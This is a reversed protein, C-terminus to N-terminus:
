SRTKVSKKEGGLCHIRDYLARNKPIELTISNDESVSPHITKTKCKILCRRLM